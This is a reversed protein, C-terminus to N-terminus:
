VACAFKILEDLKSLEVPLKITNIKEFKLIDIKIDEKNRIFFSEDMSTSKSSRNILNKYLNSLDKCYKDINDFLVNSNVLMYSINLKDLQPKYYFENVTKVDILDVCYSKCLYDLLSSGFDNLTSLKIISSKTSDLCDYISNLCCILLNFSNVLDYSLQPFHERVYIFILWGFQYLFKIKDTQKDNFSIQKFMLTFICHYKNFLICSTNYNEEFSNMLDNLFIEESMGCYDNQIPMM